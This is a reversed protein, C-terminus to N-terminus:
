QLRLKEPAPAGKMVNAYSSTVHGIDLTQVGEGAMEAALVTGAPGLSVLVLDRPQTLINSKITELDDFANKSSTLFYDLSKVNSFFNDSANFRSGKGTVILVDRNEWCSRWAERLRDGEREFGLPRSIHANGWESDVALIKKLVPWFRGYITMWSTDYILPPLAVLLNESPTVLIKKLANSLEYSNRQFQIDRLPNVAMGFEGDGFRALSLRQEKVRNVTDVFSLQRSSVLDYYEELFSGAASFRIQELQSREVHVDRVLTSMKDVIQSLNEDIEQVRESKCNPGPLLIDPSPNVIDTDTTHAPGLIKAAMKQKAWVRSSDRADMESPKFNHAEIESLEIDEFSSGLDILSGHKVDYYSSGSRYVGMMDLRAGMLHPHFRQTIMFNSDGTPIKGLLSRVDLLSFYPFRKSLEIYSQVDDPTCAWYYHNDFSNVVSEPLRSAILKGPNDGRISIHLSKGETREIDVPYLFADDLGLEVNDIGKNQLYEFSWSDRVELISFSSFLEKIFIQTEENGDPLPGLGLGTGVLRSNFKKKAAYAVGLLFGHTPWKDNLYGGGHLHIIDSNRMEARLKESEVSEGFMFEIGSRVSDYFDEHSFKFRNERIRSSAQFGSFRETHLWKMVDTSSGSITVNQPNVGCGEIYWRLWNKVILEDGYNPVAAGGLLFIKVDENYKEVFEM